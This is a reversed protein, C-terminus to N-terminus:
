HSKSSGAGTKFPVVTTDDQVRQSMGIIVVIVLIGAYDDCM